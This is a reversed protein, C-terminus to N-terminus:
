SGFGIGSRSLEGETEVFALKAVVVGFRHGRVDTLWVMADGAAVAEEVLKQVAASDEVDLELERAGHLGIRIKKTDSM